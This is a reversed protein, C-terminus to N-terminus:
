LMSFFESRATLCSFRSWVALFIENTDSAVLILLHLLYTILCFFFLLCVSHVFCDMTLCPISKFNCNIVSTPSLSPLMNESTFLHCKLDSKMHKFGSRESSGNDACLSSLYTIAHPWSMNTKFFACGLIEMHPKFLSLYFYIIMLCLM